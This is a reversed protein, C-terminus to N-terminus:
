TLSWYSLDRGLLNSLRAVEPAFEAQLRLRLDLTMQKRPSYDTNLRRMKKLLTHRLRRTLIPRGLKRLLEPPDDLVQRVFTSRVRKHPNVREFKIAPWPPVGLFQCIDRYVEATNTAFDDFIIVRVKEWGFLDVYRRVQDTYKAVERYFLHDRLTAGAPLRLGRKRDEEAELAGAFDEIEERGIYLVESHLSYMMDVPNRLMVIVSSSPNFEKIECAALKSYLYWVSCEGVRRETHARSFLSLYERKDSLHGPAAIDSGFFHPEKLPCMFIDPHRTLYHCMATTGCKPAGVIFFDPKRM